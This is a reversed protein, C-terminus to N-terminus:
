WYKEVPCYIRRKLFIFGERREEKRGKRSMEKRRM